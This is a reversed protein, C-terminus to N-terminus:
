ANIVSSDAVLVAGYSDNVSLNADVDLVSYAGYYFAFYDDEDGLAYLLDPSMTVAITGGYYAAYDGGFVGATLEVSVYDALSPDVAGSADIAIELSSGDTIYAYYLYTDFAIEAEEDAWATLLALADQDGEAALEAMYALASKYSFTLTYNGEEDFESKGYSVLMAPLAQGKYTLVGHDAAAWLNDFSWLDGDYELDIKSTDPGWNLTFGSSNDSKLVEMFNLPDLSNGSISGFGLDFQGVMLHKYYVDSWVDVAEGNVKLALLNRKAGESENFADQIFKAIDNHYRTIHSQYMWWITINLVDGKKITGAEIMEDIAATFATQALEKSFGGTSVTDGWFGKLANAHAETTNYSVGGEPDSMYNSSFYNISAISGNKTAFTDRDISYFLGKVFNDNSMWPKVDWYESEKTQAITGDKGFLEVWKEKTTTNLNLKFVSDGPVKTSREDDKYAALFDTPIGASDLTGSLIFEKFAANSDTNVATLIANYMGEINYINNDAKREYWEDNRGFVIAKDTEWDELFYPGTSLFNDVPSASKDTNFSGYFEPHAYNETVLKFFDLNIPAYLSSALSYMAYFRTTAAGLEFDIFDGDADKGAKIGVKAWAAESAEAGFGAKASANYYDSAGAIASYGTQGALEAGRYYAFKGCLLIKFANIYDDITVFKKDFAARDAKKSATRFSVGGAEGTRVYVRWNKSTGEEDADIEYGSKDEKLKLKVPRDKSSLVGYWDYSTKDASMKTGFFGAAANGYLDGVQSGDNDLYNITQPDNAEYSHYYNPKPLDKGSLSGNLRGERIIGFGYGTIYNETGKVVRPDYMVYGGNEFLPLGTVCNDIAYKELAGLIETKTEVSEGVLSIAATKGGEVGKIDAWEQAPKAYEQAVDYNPLEPEESASSSSSQESSSAASSSAGGCSAMLFAASLVLPLLLKKKM